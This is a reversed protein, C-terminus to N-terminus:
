AFNDVVPNIRRQSSCVQPGAWWNQIDHYTKAPVNDAHLLACLRCYFRTDILEGTGKWRFYSNYEQDSRDLRHLYMALDRPSAFDSVHIFSKHPAVAEYDARPAGMVIPVVDSQLPIWLKETIYWWCDSNEFSLYFKYDRRLIEQCKKTRKDCKNPGCSGFIDVDIYKALEKAYDMRNNATQCNSVFWAVKKKGRKLTAYNTGQQLSRVNSDYLVFKEYPTVLESDQRFTATWNIHGNLKTYDATYHPSELLTLIWIQEPPRKYITKDLLSPNVFDKLLVADAEKVKSEDYTIRCDSVPCKNKVFYRQGIPPRTRIRSEVNSYILKIKRPGKLLPRMMLQHEIRDNRPQQQPWVHCPPMDSRFTLSQRLTANTLYWRTLGTEERHHLAKKMLNSRSSNFADVDSSSSSRESRLTLFTSTGYVAAIVVLILRFNLRRCSSRFYTLGFTVSMAMISPTQSLSPGGLKAQAWSFLPEFEAM